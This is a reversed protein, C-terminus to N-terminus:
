HNLPLSSTHRVCGLRMGNMDLKMTRPRLRLKFRVDENPLFPFQSHLYHPPLPVYLEVKIWDEDEAQSLASPKDAEAGAATMNGDRDYYM